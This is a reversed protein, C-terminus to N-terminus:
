EARRSRGAVAAGAAAPRRWYTPSDPCLQCSLVLPGGQVGPARRGCCVAAPGGAAATTCDIRSGAYAAQRPLPLPLEATTGTMSEYLARHDHSVLLVQRRGSITKYAIPTIEGAPVLVALDDVTVGLKPEHTPHYQSCGRRRAACMSHPIDRCRRPVIVRVGSVVTVSRARPLTDWAQEHMRVGPVHWMWLPDRRAADSFWVPLVGARRAKTTRAKAAAVTLASRQVEVGTTIPGYIVADPRVHTPLRVETAIEYGAAAGARSIYEVQRKHEDSVGHHIEHSGALGSGPWHAAVLLGGRQQLYLWPREYDRHACCVFEGPLTRGRHRWGDIIESQAPGGFDPAAFDLLLGTPQHLVLDRM